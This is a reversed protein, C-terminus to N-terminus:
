KAILLMFIILAFITTLTRKESKLAPSFTDPWSIDALNPVKSPLWAPVDQRYQNYEDGFKEVLLSEEYHVVFFYQIIGAVLTLLVLWPIGSFTAVGIVIAFNGVYLPNRMWSFPGEKILLSGTSSSRTRSVTGIFAVSYIRFLEGATILVMGLTASLVSPEAIFLMLVIIPIPTYDRYKFFIEGIEIFSKDGLKRSDLSEL